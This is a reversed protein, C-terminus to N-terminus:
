AQTGKEGSNARPDLDCGTLTHKDLYTGLKELRHNVIWTLNKDEEGRAECRDLRKRESAWSDYLRKATPVPDILDRIARLDAARTHGIADGGPHPRPEEEVAALARELGMELGVVWAAAEVESYQAPADKYYYDPM